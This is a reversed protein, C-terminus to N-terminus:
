QLYVSLLVLWSIIVGPMLFHPGGYDGAWHGDETQLMSYFRVARRMADSATGNSGSEADTPLKGQWVKRVHAKILSTRAIVDCSNPNDSPDLGVYKRGGLAMRHVAALTDTDLTSSKKSGDDRSSDAEFGDIEIEESHHWTQRGSSEGTLQVKTETLTTGGKDSRAFNETTARHSQDAVLLEWSGNILSDPPSHVRGQDWHPQRMRAQEGRPGGPHSVGMRKGDWRRNRWLISTFLLRGLLALVFVITITAIQTHQLYSPVATSPIGMAALISVVADITEIKSIVSPSYIFPIFLCSLALISAFTIGARTLPLFCGLSTDYGILGGGEEAGSNRDFLSWRRVGLGLLLSPSRFPGRQCPILSLFLVLITTSFFFIPVTTTAFRPYELYNDNM